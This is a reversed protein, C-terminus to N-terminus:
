KGVKGKAKVGGITLGEIMDEIGKLKNEWLKREEDDYGHWLKKIQKKCYNSEKNLSTIEAKAEPSLKVAKVAKVTEEGAGGAPKKVAKVAEVSKTKYEPTNIYLPHIKSTVLKIAPKKSKVDGNKKYETIYCGEQFAKMVFAGTEEGDIIFPKFSVHPADQNIKYYQLKIPVKRDKATVGTAVVAYVDRKLHEKYVYEDFVWENWPTTTEATKGRTGKMKAINVLKWGQGDFHQYIPRYELTGNFKSTHLTDFEAYSNVWYKLEIITKNSILDFPFWEAEDVNMKNSIEFWKFEIKDTNFLKTTMTKDTYLENVHKIMVHEFATGYSGGEETVEKVLAPMTLLKKTKEVDEGEEYGEKSEEILNVIHPQLDFDQSLYNKIPIESEVLEDMKDAPVTPNLYYDRTVIQLPEKHQRAYQEVEKRFMGGTIFRQNYRPKYGLGGQGYTVPPDNSRFRM